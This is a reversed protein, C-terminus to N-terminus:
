CDWNVITHLYPVEFADEARASVDRVDFEGPEDVWADDAARGGGLHERLCSSAPEQGAESWEM